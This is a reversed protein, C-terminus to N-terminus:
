RIQTGQYTPIIIKGCKPCSGDENIYPYTKEQTRSILLEGCKYCNLNRMENAVVNGPYVFFMRERAIDILEYLKSEPCPPIHNLKYSPFFRSMHLPVNLMNHTEMWKVFEMLLNEDDTMGPICLMTIELHINAKKIELISSLVPKLSGGTLEKYISDSFVKMDINVADLYPLLKQLADKCIYGNSVMINKIGEKHALQATELMYEYFITPESYTYSISSCHNTKAQRVIQEPSIIENRMELNDSQSLNSNQCNRCHLNCGPTGISYTSEGPLFHYLPKKEIPDIAQAIAQGYSLAYLKGDIQMRSGCPSMQKEKLVCHHPCLDCIIKADSSKHYFEAEKTKM